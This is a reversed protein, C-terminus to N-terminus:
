WTSSPPINLAGVSRLYEMSKADLCSASGDGVGHPERLLIRVFRRPKQHSLIQGLITTSDIGGHYAFVEQAHLPSTGSTLDSRDDDTQALKLCTELQCDEEAVRNTNRDRVKFGISSDSLAPTSCTTFPSPSHGESLLGPLRDQPAPNYVATPPQQELCLCRGPAQYSVKHANESTRDAPSSSSDFIAPAPLEWQGQKM